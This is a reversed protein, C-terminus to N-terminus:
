RRRPQASTTFDFNEGTMSGSIDGVSFNEDASESLSKDKGKSLRKPSQKSDNLFSFSGSGSESGGGVSFELADSDVSAISGELDEMVHNGDEMDQLDSRSREKFPNKNSTAASPSLHLKTESATTWKDEQSDKQNSKGILGSSTRSLASYRDGNTMRKQVPSDM